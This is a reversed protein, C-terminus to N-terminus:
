RARALFVTITGPEEGEVFRMDIAEVKGVGLDSLSELFEDDAVARIAIRRDAKPVHANVECLSTRCRVAAMSVGDRGSFRSSLEQQTALAWDPDSPESELQTRLEMGPGALPPLGADPQRAGEDAVPAFAFLAAAASAAIISMIVIGKTTLRSGSMGSRGDGDGVSAPEPPGVPFEDCSIQTGGPYVERALERSSSAGTKRRASRLRENVANETLSLERAVSKITHGGSLLRLIDREGENLKAEADAPLPL